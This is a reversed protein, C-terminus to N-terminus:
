IYVHENGVTYVYTNTYKDINPILVLNDISIRSHLCSVGFAIPQIYM